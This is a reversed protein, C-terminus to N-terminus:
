AGGSSDPAGGPGAAIVHQRALLAGGVGLTATVFGAVASTQAETLTWWDFGSGLALTATVVATATAAIAVPEKATGPRVHAVVATILAAVAGAEATVLATQASSWHVVKFVTVITIVSVALAAIASILAKPNPLPLPAAPSSTTM